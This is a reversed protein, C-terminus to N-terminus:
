RTKFSVNVNFHTAVPNGLADLAPEYKWRLVADVAAGDMGYGQPGVIFLDNTTGDKEVTVIMDVTGRIDQRHAEEPYRPEPCSICRPNTAGNQGADVAISPLTSKFDRGGALFEKTTLAIETVIPIGMPSCSQIGCKFIEIKAPSPGSTPIEFHASVYGDAHMRTAIWEGLSTNFVMAESVRNQKLMAGIEARGIVKVTPVEKALSDSVEDRLMTGLDTVRKGPGSFGVVVITRMKSKSIPGVLKATLVRVAASTDAPAQKAGCAASVLLLCGLTYTIRRLM